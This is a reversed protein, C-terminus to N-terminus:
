FLQDKMQWRILITLSSACLKMGAPWHWNAWSTCKKQKVKALLKPKFEAPIFPIKKRSLSEMIEAKWSSTTPTKDLPPAPLALLVPPAPPTAAQTSRPSPASLPIACDTQTAVDASRRPVLAPAHRPRLVAPPPRAVTITPRIGRYLSPFMQLTTADLITLIADGSRM